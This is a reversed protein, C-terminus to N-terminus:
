ESVELKKGKKPKTYIYYVYGAIASILIALGFGALCVFLVYMATM